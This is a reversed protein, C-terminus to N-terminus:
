KHVNTYIQIYKGCGGGLGAWFEWSLQLTIWWAMAHAAHFPPTKQSEEFIYNGLSEERSLYLLSGQFGSTRLFELTIGWKEIWACICMGVRPCNCRQHKTPIERNKSKSGQLSRSAGAPQFDTHIDGVFLFGHWGAFMSCFLVCFVLLSGM